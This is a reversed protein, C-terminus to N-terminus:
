ARASAWGANPVTALATSVAVAVVVAAGDFLMEVARSPDHDLRPVADHLRDDTYDDWVPLVVGISPPAVAM